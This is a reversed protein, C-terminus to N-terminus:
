IVRLSQRRRVRRRVRRCPLDITHITPPQLSGNNLADLDRVATAIQTSHVPGSPHSQIPVIIPDRPNPLPHIEAILRDGVAKAAAAVLKQRDGFTVDGVRSAWCEFYQFQEGDRDVDIGIVIRHQDREACVLQMEFHAM